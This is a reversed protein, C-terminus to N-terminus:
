CVSWSVMNGNAVSQGLGLEEERIDFLTELPV